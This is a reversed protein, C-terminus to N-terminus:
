EAAMAAQACFCSAAVRGDARALAFDLRMALLRAEEGEARGRAKLCDVLGKLSWVNDPHIIARSLGGGLGLDERYVAEAEELRGQEFLLAGLAHRTPQIWGWPEDYPLADDLAVSRRLHAFAAEHNGKRYELEGDLMAEAIELLDVCRNNHLLRSEPVAAKAELFRARVAEAESVNGLAAHAVGQAYLRNAHTVCWIDKEEVEPLVILERWKGFRIMVHEKMSIYSEIFDAMPPSESRLLDEPTTDILGQANRMAAEYQGLFMAGYIAFHYNHIRYATYFNMAGEREVFELDAEIAKENWHLTDRYDGCLIDIHTPMHILHGGHPVLERLVDGTKLAREPHPSMEMLHVHLHLLGPHRWAAETEFARDLAAEAEATGAGEAVTATRLDWMRWPTVNMISEVFVCAIELDHPHAAYARRMADRFDANWPAQDEIPDRQPYRAQLAEILAKEPATVKDILALAAQACDYGTGLAKAKGKPDMHSWQFNYNPGAAYGLGWHAMACDPDADLAKGFCRMAEEHCYAYTWVLGRDFWLQAEDNAATITRSHVDVDFYSM